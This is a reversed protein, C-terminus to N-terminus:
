SSMVLKGNGIPYAHTFDKAFSTDWLVSKDADGMAQPSGLRAPGEHCCSQSGLPPVVTAKPIKPNSQLRAYVKEFNSGAEKIRLFSVVGAKGSKSPLSSQASSLPHSLSHSLSLPISASPRPFIHLSLAVPTLMVADSVYPAEHSNQSRPRMTFCWCRLRAAAEDAELCLWICAFLLFDRPTSSPLCTRPPADHRSGAAGPRPCLPSASANARSGAPWAASTAAPLDFPTECTM